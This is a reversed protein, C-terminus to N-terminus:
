DDNYVGLAVQELVIPVRVENVRRAGNYYAFQTISSSHEVVTVEYPIGLPDYYVLTGKNGIVDAGYLHDFMQQCTYEVPEGDSLQVNSSLLLTMNDRFRDNVMPLFKLTVARIRPTENFDDTSLLLAIKLYRGVPRQAPIDFRVEQGDETVVGISGAVEWDTSNEDKFYVAVSQGESINDGVITVSEWNKDLLYQGGVFRDQEIWGYYSFKYDSLTYPNLTYDPIEIYSFSANHNSWWLRSNERDYLMNYRGQIGVGSRQMWAEALFHWGEEQFAWVSPRAIAGEPVVYAILWNNMRALSQVPGIREAPLEGERSVWIDIMQGSSDYRFLRGNTPIYLRENYEIMGVGNAADESGFRSIEQVVNGPALRVLAKDTACFFSDGMGAMGRISVDSGGMAFPGTWASGDASYYLDSGVSRYLLNGQIVLLHGAVSGASFVQSTNM